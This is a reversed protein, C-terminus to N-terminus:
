VKFFNFKCPMLQCPQLEIMHFVDTLGVARQAGKLYKGLELIEGITGSQEDESRWAM